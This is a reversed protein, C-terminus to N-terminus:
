ARRAADIRATLDRVVPSTTFPLFRLPACFTVKTGFPGLRGLTLTVRPPNVLVSHDVALIDSLLVRQQREGNKIILADGDDLVEDVLDRVLFRTFVYGVAVIAAPIILLPMPPLEGSQLSSVLVIASFVLLIGLDLLPFVRKYCYTARSSIRRM